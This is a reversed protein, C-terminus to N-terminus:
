LVPESVMIEPSFTFKIIGNNFLQDYFFITKTNVLVSKRTEFGLVFHGYPVVDFAREYHYLVCSLTDKGDILKIDQQMNFACYQVRQQYEQESELDYKIFEKHFDEIKIRLDFYQLDEFNSKKLTTDQDELRKQSLLYDTPKLIASYTIQGITKSKIFGNKKDDVFAMLKEPEEFLMPKEKPLVLYVDVVRESESSCGALLLICFISAIQFIFKM